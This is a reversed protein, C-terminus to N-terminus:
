DAGAHQVTSEAEGQEESSLCLPERLLRRFVPVANLGRLAPVEMLIVSDLCFIRQAKAQSTKGAM